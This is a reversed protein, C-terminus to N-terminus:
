LVWLWWKGAYMNHGAVMRRARVRTASLVDIINWVNAWFTHAGMKHHVVDAFEWGWGEVFSVVPRQEQESSYPCLLANCRM